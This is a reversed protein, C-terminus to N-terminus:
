FVATSKSFGIMVIKRSQTQRLFPNCLYRCSQCFCIQVCITQRVHAYNRNCACGSIVSCSKFSISFNFRVQGETTCRRSSSYPLAIDRYYDKSNYLGRFCVFYFILCYFIVIIDTCLLM